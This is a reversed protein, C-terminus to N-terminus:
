ADAKLWGSWRLADDLPYPPEYIEFLSAWMQPAPRSDRHRTKLLAWADYLDFGRELLYALVTTSSRSIGYRCAVLVPRGTRVATQVFAVGHLLRAPSVRQGDNFPNDCVTFDRPWVPRRHYLKLVHTLGRVRMLPVHSTADAGSIYVGDAVHDIGPIRIM